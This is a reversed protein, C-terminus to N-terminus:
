PQSPPPSQNRHKQTCISSPVLIYILRKLWTTPVRETLSHCWTHEKDMAVACNAGSLVLLEDQSFLTVDLIFFFLHSSILKELGQLVKLQQPQILALKVGQNRFTESRYFHKLVFTFPLRWTADKPLFFLKLKPTM